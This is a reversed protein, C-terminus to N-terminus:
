KNLQLARPVNKPTKKGASMITQDLFCFLGVVYYYDSFEIVSSQSKLQPPTQFYLFYLWVLMVLM